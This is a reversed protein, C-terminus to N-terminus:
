VSNVPNKLIQLIEFYSYILMMNEMM